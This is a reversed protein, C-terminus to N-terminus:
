RLGWSLSTRQCPFNMVQTPVAWLDTPRVPFLVDDVAKVVLAVEISHTPYSASYPSQLSFLFRPLRTPTLLKKKKKLQTLLPFFLFKTAASTPTLYSPFWRLM